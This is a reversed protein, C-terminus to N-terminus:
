GNRHHLVTQTEGQRVNLISKHVELETAVYTPNVMAISEKCKTIRKFGHNSTVQEIRSKKNISHMNAYRQEQQKTKEQRYAEHRKELLVEQETPIYAPNVMAISEKCPTVRKWERNATVQELRAKKKEPHMNAYRQRDQACKKTRQEPENIRKQHYAERHKKLMKEKEEETCRKMRQNPEKTKKQHYAERRNKLKKQKEENNMRAYRERDGKRRKEKADM